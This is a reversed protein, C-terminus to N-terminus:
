RDRDIMLTNNEEKIPILHDSEHHTAPTHICLLMKGDPDYTICPHGGDFMAYMDDFSQDYLYGEDHTWPGLINGSKSRAIRVCYGVCHPKHTDNSWLLLLEGDKTRYLYCADTIEHDSRYGDYSNFLTHVEGEVDTLDRNLRAACFYGGHPTSVWEHSFVIWPDDHEDVYLTADICSWSNMGDEVWKGDVLMRNQPVVLGKTILQFKGMPEDARLICCGRYCHGNEHPKEGKRRYTAFMYYKGHYEHVEPAWLDTEADFAPPQDEPDMVVTFDSWHVLDRSQYAVWYRNKYNLYSYYLDGVKLIFPDRVFLPEIIGIDKELVTLTGDQGICHTYVYYAARWVAPEDNGALYLDTSQESCDAFVGYRNFDLPLCLNKARATGIDGVIINYKGFDRRDSVPISIGSRRSIREALLEASRRTTMPADKPFFVKVQKLDTGTIRIPEM